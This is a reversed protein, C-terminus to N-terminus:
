EDGSGHIRLWEAWLTDRNARVIEVAQRRDRATMTSDLVEVPSLFVRTGKGAKLVHVHAPSHDNFFIMIRFGREHIITPM